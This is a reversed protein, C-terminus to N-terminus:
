TAFFAALVPALVEPAVDHNQGELTRRRAQALVDALAQSAHRMWVPSAGGDLVLTPAGVGAWRRAPLPRGGVTGEMFAADYALTHAVAEFAPWIPEHRMQGVVEAPVGAAETLFLAVADGRRGAAILENLRVPYDDLVPLRTDDVVF